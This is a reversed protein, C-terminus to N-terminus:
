PGARLEDNRKPNSSRCPMQKLLVSRSRLEFAVETVAAASVGRHVGCGGFEDVHARSRRDRIRGSIAPTRESAGGSDLM